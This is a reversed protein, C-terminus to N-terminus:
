AASPHTELTRRAKAKLATLWANATLLLDLEHQEEPTMTGDQVRYSLEECRAKEEETFGLRLLFKAHEISLDGNEPAVMRNFMATEDFM